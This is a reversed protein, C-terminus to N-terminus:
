LGTFIKISGKTYVPSFISLQLHSTFYYLNILIFPTETYITSIIIKCWTKPRKYRLFMWLNTLPRTTIISCIFRCLGLNFRVRIWSTGRGRAVHFYLCISLLIVTGPSLIQSSSGSSLSPVSVSEIPSILSDDGAM